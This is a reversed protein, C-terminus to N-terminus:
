APSDPKLGFGETVIKSKVKKAIESEELELDVNLFVYRTDKRSIIPERRSVAIIKSWENSASNNLLYEVIANGVIGSAGTILAVKGM